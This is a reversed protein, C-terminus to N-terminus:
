GFWGDRKEREEEEGGEREKVGKEQTGGNRRGRRERERGRRGRGRGGRQLQQLPRPDLAPYSLSLPSPHDRTRCWEYEPVWTLLTCVVAVPLLLPTFFLPPLPISQNPSFPTISLFSKECDEDECWWVSVMVPPDQDGSAPCTCCFNQNELQCPLAPLHPQCQHPLEHQRPGWCPTRVFTHVHVMMLESVHTRVSTRVHVMM